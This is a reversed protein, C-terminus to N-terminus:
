VLGLVLGNPCRQNPPMVPIGKLHHTTKIASNLKQSDTLEESAWDFEALGTEAAVAAGGGEAGAFRLAESRSFSAKGIASCGSGSIAMM